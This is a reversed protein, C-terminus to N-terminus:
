QETGRQKRSYMRSHQTLQNARLVSQWASFAEEPPRATQHGNKRPRLALAVAVAAAAAKRHPEDLELAPIQTDVAQAETVMEGVESAAETKARLATLNVMLAMLGWLLLLSIFVLGMGILTIWLANTLTPNM